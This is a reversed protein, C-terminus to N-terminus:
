LLEFGRTNGRMGDFRAPRGSAAAAASGRRRSRESGAKDTGVGVLVSGQHAGGGRLGRGQGIAGSSGSSEPSGHRGRRGLAV